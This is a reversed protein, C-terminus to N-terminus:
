DEDNENEDDNMKLLSLFAEKEITVKGFKALKEKGEKQKNLLKLKRSYDGGYCKEIVNKRVSNLSVSNIISNNICAYIKLKYQQRKIKKSLNKLLKRSNELAYKRPTLFSLPKIIEDNMKIDVKVLDNKRYRSSEYSM